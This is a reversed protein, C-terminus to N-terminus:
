QSDREIADRPNLAKLKVCCLLYVFMNRMRRASLSASAHWAGAAEAFAALAQTVQLSIFNFSKTGAVSSICIAHWCALFVKGSRQKYRETVCGVKLAISCRDDAEPQLNHEAGTCQCKHRKCLKRYDYYATNESRLM